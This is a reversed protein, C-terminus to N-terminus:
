RVGPIDSVRTAAQRSQADSAMQRDGASYLSLADATCATANSVNGTISQGSPSLVEAQLAGLAAVVTPSHALDDTLTSVVQSGATM